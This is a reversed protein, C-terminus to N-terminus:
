AWRFDIKPYPRHCRLSVLLRTAAVRQELEPAHHPTAPPVSVNQSRTFAEFTGEILQPQGSHLGLFFPPVKQDAFQSLADPRPVLEAYTARPTPSHVRTWLIEGRGCDDWGLYANHCTLESRPPFYNHRPLYRLSATHAQPM